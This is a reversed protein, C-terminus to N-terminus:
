NTSAAKTWSPEGVQTGSFRAYHVNRVLGAADIFVVTPWISVGYARSIERQPDPVLTAPLKQQAAVKRVLETAEGDNIALLLPGRTGGTALSKQLNCVTELSPESASKWFALVVPRGKLKHLTMWRGPADEFLFDPAPRGIRLSLELLRPVAFGGRVLHAELAAVLAGRKVEGEYQWVINGKPGVILTVPRRTTKVAFARAWAGDQEEAYIVGGVYLSKALQQPPLVAVVAAAADARKSERLAQTLFELSSATKEDAFHVIRNMAGGGTGNPQASAHGTVEVLGGPGSQTLAVMLAAGGVPAEVGELVSVSTYGCHSGSVPQAVAQGSSAIRTGKVTLCIPVFASIAGTAAMATVAEPPGHLLVFKNDDVLFPQSQGESSWEYQQITGGPIWSRLATYDFEPPRLGSIAGVGARGGITPIRQFEVHPVPWDPVALSGHLVIGSPRIEVSTYALVPKFEQPPPTGPQQRAPQLLSSVLAGVNNDANFLRNVEGYADLGNVDIQNLAADRANQIAGIIRGKFQDALWSSTDLSIDGPVLDATAGDAQLTFALRATFDFDPFRKKSTHAHGQITVVIKGTLLDITVSKLSVTYTASGWIPVHVHFPAIPQSLMSIVPDFAALVFDRGVALAFDDGPLLFVSNMSAPDGPASGGLIVAGTSDTAPRALNLLAAIAKPAAALTKFRLFKVQSPLPANSPLFSTKLANRILLNIGALDEASLPQSSWAPSFNISVQETKLDIEVMNATQSAVQSVSATIQLEGRIFEALPSTQSDPFYRSMVQMGVTINTGSADPIEVTPPALQLQARGQLHSPVIPGVTFGGLDTNVVPDLTLYAPNAASFQGLLEGTTGIQNHNVTADGFTDVSGVVSPRAVKSGPPPNDDVRVAMSHPFREFRHMAALVRNAAPVAFEAVVDFDGTLDNAM